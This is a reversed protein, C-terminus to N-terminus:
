PTRLHPIAGIARIRTPATAHVLLPEPPLVVPGVEASGVVEGAEVDAVGVAGLVDELGVGVM